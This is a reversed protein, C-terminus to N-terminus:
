YLLPKKLPWLVHPEKIYLRRLIERDIETCKNYSINRRLEVSERKRERFSEVEKDKNLIELMEKTLKNGHYFKSLANLIGLPSLQKLSYNWIM